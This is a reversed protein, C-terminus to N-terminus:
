RQWWPLYLVEAGMSRTLLLHHDRLDSFVAQGTPLTTSWSGAGRRLDQAELSGEEVHAGGLNHCVTQMLEARDIIADGCHVVEEFWSKLPLVPYSGDSSPSTIPRPRPEGPVFEMNFSVTWTGQSRLLQQEAKTMGLGQFSPLSIREKIGLQKCLSVSKKTDYFLVRMAVALDLSAEFDGLDYNACARQIRRIQELLRERLVQTM